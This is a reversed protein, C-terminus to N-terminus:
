DPDDELDPFFAGKMVEMVIIRGFPIFEEEGEDDTLNATQWYARTIIIGSPIFEKHVVHLRSEGGETPM